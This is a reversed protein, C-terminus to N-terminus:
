CGSRISNMRRFHFSFFRIDFHLFSFDRGLRLLLRPTDLSSPPVFVIIVLPTPISLSLFRRLSEKRIIQLKQHDLSLESRNTEEEERYYEPNVSLYDRSRRRCHYGSLFSYGNQLIGYQSVFIYCTSLVSCCVVM